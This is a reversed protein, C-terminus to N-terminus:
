ATRACAAPIEHYKRVAVNLGTTPEDLVIVKPKM